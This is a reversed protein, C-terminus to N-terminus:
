FDCVDDNSQAYYRIENDSQVITFLTDFSFEKFQINIDIPDNLEVGRTAWRGNRMRIAQNYGNVSTYADVTPNIITSDNKTCVVSVTFRTEAPLINFDSEQVLQQSFSAGPFFKTAILRNWYNISVRVGANTSIPSTSVLKGFFRRQFEMRRGYFSFYGGEFGNGLDISGQYYVNNIDPVSAISPITVTYDYDFSFRLWRYIGVNFSTSQVRLQGNPAQVVAMKTTKWSQPGVRYFGGELSDGAAVPLNTTPHVFNPNIQVSYIIQKSRTLVPQLSIPDGKEDKGEYLVWSLLKVAAPELVARNVPVDEKSITRVTRTSESGRIIRTPNFQGPDFYFTRVKLTSGTYNKTVYTTIDYETTDYGVIENLNTSTLYQWSGNVQVSDLFESPVPAYVPTIRVGTTVVKEQYTFTMGEPIIISNLEDDYYITDLDANKHVVRLVSKESKNYIGPSSISGNNLSLAYTEIDGYKTSGNEPLLEVRFTPEFDGEEVVIEVSGPIYSPASIIASFSVPQDQNPEFYPHITLTSSGNNSVFYDKTGLENFIADSSQGEIRISTNPIPQGAADVIDLKIRYDFIDTNLTLQFNDLGKTAEDPKCSSDLLLAVALLLVFNLKKM